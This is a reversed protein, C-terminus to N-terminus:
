INKPKVNSIGSLINVDKRITDRGPMAKANLEIATDKKTDIVTRKLSNKLGGTKRSYRGKDILYPM